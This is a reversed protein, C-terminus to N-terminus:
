SRRKKRIESVYEPTLGLFSAILYQPVRAAFQPFSEIFHFYIDEKSFDNLFKMKMLSAGYAIQYIIRFYRELKPYLQLLEEQKDADITLLQTEEVARISFSTTTKHQFALYDTMWWNDIAFQVTQETGNEKIFFLNLCGTLVFYNHKCLTDTEMVMAKKKVTKIEFFSRIEKYEMETIPVYNNIHDFFQKPM